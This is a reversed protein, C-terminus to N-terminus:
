IVDAYVWERGEYALRRWEDDINDESESEADNDHRARKSSARSSPRTEEKKYKPPVKLATLGEKKRQINQEKIAKREQELKRETAYDNAEEVVDEDFDDKPASTNPFSM